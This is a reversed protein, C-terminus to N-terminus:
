ASRRPLTAADVRKSRHVVVGPIRDVRRRWPVSVHVPSSPTSTLRDIEAASQHSLVAEAGAQLVAAWLVSRRDPEGTYTRYVGRGLPLWYGARVRARLAGDTVGLGAAQARTIVGEQLGTLEEVPRPLEAVM